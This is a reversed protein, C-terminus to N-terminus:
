GRGTARLRPHATTQGSRAALCNGGTRFGYLLAGVEKIGSAIQGHADAFFRVATQKHAVLSLWNYSGGSENSGSPVLDGEPQVAQTVELGQARLDYNGAVSVPIKVSRATEGAGATPVGEFRSSATPFRRPTPM